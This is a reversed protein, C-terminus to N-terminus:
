FWQVVGPSPKQMLWPLRSRYGQAGGTWRWFWNSKWVFTNDKQGDNPDCKLEGLDRKYNSGFDWDDFTQFKKDWLICVWPESSSEKIYFWAFRYFRNEFAPDNQSIQWPYKKHWTFHM